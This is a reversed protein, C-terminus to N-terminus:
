TFMLQLSIVLGVALLWPLVLWGFFVLSGLLAAALWILSGFILVASRILFGVLRMLSNIFLTALTGGLDLHSPYDEGLRRWPALLTRGLVPLSFFHYIFWLFNRYIQFLDLFALTYHWGLYSFPLLFIPM